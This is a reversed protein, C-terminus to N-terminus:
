EGALAQFIDTMTASDNAADHLANHAVFGTRDSQAKAKGNTSGTLCDIMTRIDRVRFPNYPEKEGINAYMDEIKGFDFSNGRSWMYSDRSVDQSDLWQRLQKLATKMPLDDDSPKLIAKAEPGQSKWWAVTDDDITRGYKRVQDEVSLKAYFGAKVLEKFPKPNEFQFPVCAISLVVSTQRIGLTELDFTFHTTSM